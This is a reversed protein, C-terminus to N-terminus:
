MPANVVLIFPNFLATIIATQTEREPQAATGIPCSGMGYVAVFSKFSFPIDFRVTRLTEIFPV